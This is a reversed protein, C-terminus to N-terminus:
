PSSLSLIFFLFTLSFAASTSTDPSRTGIPLTEFLIIVESGMFCCRKKLEERDLLHGCRECGWNTQKGKFILPTTYSYYTTISCGFRVLSLLINVGVDLSGCM